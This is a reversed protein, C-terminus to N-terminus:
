ASHPHVSPLPVLRDPHPLPPAKLLVGYVASFGPTNAGVGLALAAVAVATPAPTALLMRASYRLDQWLTEVSSLGWMKRSDEKVLTVNGFALYAARRAESPSMGAAVNDAIEQELHVRIEAELDREARARRIRSVVYAAERLWGM